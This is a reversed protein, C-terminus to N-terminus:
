NANSSRSPADREHERGLFIVSVMGKTFPIRNTGTVCTEMTSRSIYPTDSDWDTDAHSM